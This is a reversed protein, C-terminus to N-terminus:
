ARWRLRAQSKHRASVVTFADIRACCQGSHAQAAIMRRYSTLGSIDVGERTLVESLEEWPVCALLDCNIRSLGLVEVWVTSLMVQIAIARLKCGYVGFNSCPRM